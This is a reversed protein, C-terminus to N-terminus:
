LPKQLNHPPESYQGWNSRAGKHAASQKETLLRFKVACDMIERPLETLVVTQRHMSYDHRLTEFIPYTQSTLWRSYEPVLALGADNEHTCYDHIIYRSLLNNRSAM